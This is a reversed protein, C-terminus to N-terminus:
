FSAIEDKKMKEFELYVLNSYLELFIFAYKQQVGQKYLIYITYKAM